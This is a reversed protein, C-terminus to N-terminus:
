AIPRDSLTVGKDTGAHFRAYMLESDMSRVNFLFGRSDFFTVYELIMLLMFRLAYLSVYFYM